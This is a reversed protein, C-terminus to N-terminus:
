IWHGVLVITFKWRKVTYLSFAPTPPQFNRSKHYFQGSYLIEQNTKEKRPPTLVTGSKKYIRAPNIISLMEILPPSIRAACSRANGPFM